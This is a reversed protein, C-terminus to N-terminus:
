ADRCFLSTHAPSNYILISSTHNPWEIALHPLANKLENEMWQMWKLPSYFEFLKMIAIKKIKKQQEHVCDISQWIARAVVVNVTAHVQQFSHVQLVCSFGSQNNIVHNTVLCVCSNNVYNDDATAIWVPWEAMLVCVIFLCSVRM